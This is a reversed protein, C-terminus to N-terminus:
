HIEDLYGLPIRFKQRFTLLINKSDIKCRTQGIFYFLEVIFPRRGILFILPLIHDRRCDAGVEFGRDKTCVCVSTSPDLFTKRNASGSQQDVKFFIRLIQYFLTKPRQNIWFNIGLFATQNKMSTPCISPVENKWGKKALFNCFHAFFFLYAAAELRNRLSFYLLLPRRVMSEDAVAHTITLTLHMSWFWAFNIYKSNLYEL